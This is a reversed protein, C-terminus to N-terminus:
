QKERHCGICLERKSPRVLRYEYDSAHASHCSMCTINGNALVFYDDPITMGAKPPVNVPHNKGKIYVGHCPECITNTTVLADKLHHDPPAPGKAAVPNGRKQASTNSPRGLAIALPRSATFSIVYQGQYRFLRPTVALPRLPQHPAKKRRERVEKAARAVFTIEGSVARRGFLDVAVARAVYTRGAKLGSLVVRHDTTLEEDLPTAQAPSGIGYRVQTTAPRRTRWSLVARLMLGQEVRVKVQEPLTPRGDDKLPSLRGLPPLTLERRLNKGNSIGLDVQLRTGPAAKDPDLFFWHRRQPKRHGALWEVDRDTMFGRAKAERGSDAIHCFHCKKELFPKHVYTKALAADWVAQHCSVCDEDRQGDDVDKIEAAAEPVSLALHWILVLLAGAIRWRRARM